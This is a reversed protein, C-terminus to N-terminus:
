RARDVTLKVLRMEGSYGGLASFYSVVIERGGHRALDAHQQAGYGPPETFAYLGESWPGTIRPAAKIKTVTPPIFISIPDTYVMIFQRLFRNYAIGGAGLMDPVGVAATKDPVWTTGNWYRYTSFDLLTGPRVRAIGVDPGFGPSRALYVWGRHRLLPRYDMDAPLLDPDRTAVTGTTALSEATVRATGTGLVDYSFPGLVLLKDFYVVAVGARIAIIPGPWLALRPNGPTQNWALEEATFPIFQLPAGAADLTETLPLFDDFRRGGIAATNSRLRAGDVSTVNLLSDGFTWLEFRGVRGSAGGDRALVSPPQGLTGLDETATVTLAPPACTARCTPSCCDLADCEEGPDVILDGCTGAAPADAPHALLLLGALAGAAWSPCARTAFRV